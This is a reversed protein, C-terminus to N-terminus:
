LVSNRYCCQCGSIRGYNYIVNTNVSGVESSFPSCGLTKQDKTLRCLDTSTGKQLIALLTRGQSDAINMRRRQTLDSHMFDSNTAICAQPLRTMRKRRVRSRLLRKSKYRGRIHASRMGPRRDNSTRHELSRMKEKSLASGGAQAIRSFFDLAEGRRGRATTVVSAM